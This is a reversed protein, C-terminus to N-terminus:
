AASQSQQYKRAAATAERQWADRDFGQAFEILNQWKRSGDQGTFERAPFGIWEKGDKEHWPCEKLVLGDYAITLFGKLTNKTFPRFAQIQINM